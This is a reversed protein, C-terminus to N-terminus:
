QGAGLMLLLLGDVVILAAGIANRKTILSESTNRSRSIAIGLGILVFFCLALTLFIDDRFRGWLELNWKYFAIGLTLVIVNMAFFM